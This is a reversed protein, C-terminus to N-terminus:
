QAYVKVNDFQVIQTADAAYPIVQLNATTATATFTFTKTTMSSTNAIVNGMLNFAGSQERAGFLANKSGSNIDIQAQYSAGITLGDIGIQACASFNSGNTVAAVNGSVSLSAAGTSAWGETANAAFTFIFRPTPGGSVFNSRFRTACDPKSNDSIRYIGPSAVNQDWYLYFAYDHSTVWSYVRDLWGPRDASLGFECLAMPKGHAAAFSAQWGLGSNPLDRAYNFSNYPQTSNIGDYYLDLGVIDVFDDGPYALSLDYSTSPSSTWNPCWIFRFRNSVSRFIGVMRQFAIAYQTWHGSNAAEWPYLGGINFEHGIRLLIPGTASAPDAAIAQAAALYYNDFSGSAADVLSTGIVNPGMSWVKPTLNGAFSSIISAIGGAQVAWSNHPVFCTILYLDRGNVWSNWTVIGATTGDYPLAGLKNKFAVGSPVFVINTDLSCVPLTLLFAVLDHCYRNYDPDDAIRRPAAYNGSISVTDGISFGVASGNTNIGTGPSFADIPRPDIAAINDSDLSHAKAVQSATLVFFSIVSV